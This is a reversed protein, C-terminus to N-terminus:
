GFIDTKQNRSSSADLFTNIIWWNDLYYKVQM